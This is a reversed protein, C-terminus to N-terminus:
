DAGFISFVGKLPFDDRSFLRGFSLVEYVQEAMEEVLEESSHFEIDFEPFYVNYAIGLHIEKKM